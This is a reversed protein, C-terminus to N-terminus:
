FVCKWFTSSERSERPELKQGIKSRLLLGLVVRSMGHVLVTSGDAVFPAALEAIKDRSMSLRRSFQEGRDALMMRFDSGVEDSESTRTVFRMFLECGSAITVSGPTSAKLKEVESQLEERLGMLTTAKSRRIVATLARVVGVAAALHRDTKMMEEVKLAIQSDGM